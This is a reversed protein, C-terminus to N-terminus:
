RPSAHTVIGVESARRVAATRSGVGLKAYISRLHAHVTRVSVFSRNAIESNSLGDAVLQVIEVERATLTASGDRSPSVAEAIADELTLSRGEGILDDFPAQGLHRRTDDACRDWLAAFAAPPNWEFAQSAAQAAGILRAASAYTGRAVAVAAFGSSVAALHRGMKVDRFLMTAEVLAAEARPVNGAALYGLALNWLARALQRRHRGRRLVPVAEEM